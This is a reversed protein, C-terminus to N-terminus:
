VRNRQLLRTQRNERAMNFHDHVQEMFAEIRTRENTKKLGDYVLTLMPVRRSKRLACVLAATVVTGYSCNLTMLNLVGDAGAAVQNMVTAIPATIGSPLRTEACQSATKWIRRGLLDLPDNFLRRLSATGKVRLEGLALLAYLLGKQAAERSRFNLVNWTFDRLTAMKLSDSFTPPPWVTGGLSEIERYVDNNAYAVVRTYYDGTVAVMPRPAEDRLPIALLDHVVEEIGQRINGECLAEFLRDRCQRYVHEAHMKDQAHARIELFLRLLVDYANLGEWGRLYLRQRNRESIGFAALGEDVDSVVGMPLGMVKRIKDLYTPFQGLRCADSGIIYFLAPGDSQHAERAVKLYDGLILAYPHCEGGVMHPRGLIESDRDPPPLVRADIGVSRAAAAFGYSHECMYPLYLIKARTSRQAQKMAASQSSHGLESATPESVSAQRAGPPTMPACTQIARNRIKPKLRRFRIQEVFAEIRTIMGARSSHEDMELVLLPKDSCAERIHRLTFPDPGCGFFTIMIPFLRPDRAIERAVRVLEGQYKWYLDSWPSNPPLPYLDSPLAKIDLRRFVAALNMNLFSEATHYPKGLVVVARENPELSQLFSEGRARLRSRFGELAALGREYAHAAQSRSFGLGTTFRMHERELSHRDLAYSVVPEQWEVQFSGKYFLSSAQIYPCHEVVHEQGGSIPESLISPHFITRIGSDVLARIQGALSKMPLCTEVRLCDLGKQFQTRDPRPSVSLSIGLEACSVAWFPFWDFFQPSRAMGWTLPLSDSPTNAYEELVEMRFGFPNSEAVGSATSEIEWRDCLGGHFVTRNRAGYRSIRCRNPCGKCTFQETRIGDLNLSCSQVGRISLNGVQIRERAKLAAGLAGSVMFYDPVIFTRRTQQEFAARVAPTAAVGGLLLVKEGLPRNNAVRELYNHVVSICVGAALDQPSAGNNQHHVLDSEMFVTCRTGLDVPRRSSFAADSFEEGMTLGLRLSQAMLFSGTGAACVRNMEFDKVTGDDIAIWKADQGGIEVVTDVDPAHNLAAAAQASIEDIILDADLLRGILYRGSGTVSVAELDPDGRLLDKLVHEVTELVRSRSICYKQRVIRGESDVLVGKVSVSGIDLGMIVPGKPEVGAQVIPVPTSGCRRLAKLFSPSVVKELAGAARERLSSLAIKEGRPKRSALIACGMAGMVRFHDPVIVQDEPLELLTRFAHVVAENCMVGGQLSVVPKIGEGRVLTAMYNRALSFALGLLIDPLPTGEQAHHVMDTKAFVACRGAVHAPSRSQLALSGFSEVSIGLREAQEDLFAGTGAACIENMRFASIRPTDAGPLPELTIFKSDQGGIEIITRVEPVLRYIGDAHASIENVAPTGLASSLLERGSGTVLASEVTLGAGVYGILEDFAAILEALPRGGTRKYITIPDELGDSLLVVNLSVSGCDIGLFRRM